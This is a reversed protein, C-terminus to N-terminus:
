DGLYTTLTLFLSGLTPSARKVLIHRQLDLSSLKLMADSDKCDGVKVTQYDHRSVHRSDIASRECTVDANESSIRLHLTQVHSLCCKGLIIRLKMQIQVHDVSRYKAFKEILQTNVFKFRYRRGSNM